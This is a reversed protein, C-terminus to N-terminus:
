GSRGGGEGFLSDLHRHIAQEIRSRFPLLLFGLEAVIRVNGKTLELRGTVGTRQFDLVREDRWALRLGFEESLAKGARDAAAKAKKMTLKHPRDIEIRSM